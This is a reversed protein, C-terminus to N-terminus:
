VATGQAWYHCEHQVQCIMKAYAATTDETPDAQGLLRLPITNTTNAGSTVIYQKSIGTSTNGASLSPSGIEYNLDLNAATVASDIQAVYVQDPHDAVLVYGATTGDGARTAAIYSIPDMNEDFCELVSGLIPMEDGPTSPIVKSDEIITLLGFKATIIGGGSGTSVLDQVMVNITPATQVAYIRARKVNLYCQFGFPASAKSM